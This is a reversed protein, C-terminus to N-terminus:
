QSSLKQLIALYQKEVMPTCTPPIKQAAKAIHSLKISPKLILRRDIREVPEATEHSSECPVYRGSGDDLKTFHTSVCVRELMIDRATAVVNKIDSPSYYNTLEAAQELKEVPLVTDDLCLFHELLRKRDNVGPLGVFFKRQFRRSIADDLITFNNTAAFIYLNPSLKDPDIFRLLENTLQMGHETTGEDRRRAFSDFEDFFIMCRCRQAAAEAFLSAINRESSGVYKEIFDSAKVSMFRADLMKACAEALVTKGTGPPGWLIVNHAPKYNNNYMQPMQVPQLLMQKLDNKVKRMGIINDWSVVPEVFKGIQREKGSGGDGASSASNKPIASSSAAAMEQSSSSSSSSSRSSTAISRSNEQIQKLVAQRCNQVMEAAADDKHATADSYADLAALAAYAHKLAEERDESTKFAEISKKYEILKPHVAAM